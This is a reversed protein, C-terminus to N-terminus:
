GRATPGRVFWSAPRGDGAAPKLASFAPFLLNNECNCFPLSSLSAPRVEGWVGYNWLPCPGSDCSKSEAPKVREECYSSTRGSADQCVVVRRQFGGACTSSCQPRLRLGDAPVPVFDRQSLDLMMSMCSGLTGDEVPQRGLARELQQPGSPTGPRAPVRLAPRQHTTPPLRLPLARRHVGAGHPAERRPRLLVPGGTPPLQFLRRPPYNKGRWLNGFVPPPSRHMLHFDWAMRRNRSVEKHHPRRANTVM